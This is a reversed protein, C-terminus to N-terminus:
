LEVLVEVIEIVEVVEIDLWSYSENQRMSRMRGILEAYDYAPPIAANSVQYSTAAGLINRQLIAINSM